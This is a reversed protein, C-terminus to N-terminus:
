CTGANWTDYGTQWNLCYSDTGAGGPDTPVTGTWFRPGRGPTPVVEVNDVKVPPVHVTGGLRPDVYVEVYQEVTARDGIPLRQATLLQWSGAWWLWARWVPDPGPSASLEIWVRDGDKVPYQDYFTWRNTNTDFTYIRQRGSRSWGAEAWGAEIWRMGTPTGAKAMFRTAVFDYSGQRVSSDRVTLRGRVGAWTGATTAGLHHYGPAPTPPDVIRSTGPPLWGVLVPLLAGLM